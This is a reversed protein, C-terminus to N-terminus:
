LIEFIFILIKFLKNNIKNANYGIEISIPLKDIFTFIKKIELTNM